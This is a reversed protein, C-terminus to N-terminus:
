VVLNCFYKTIESSCVRISPNLMKALSISDLAWQTELASNYFSTYKPGASGLQVEEISFINHIELDLETTVLWMYRSLAQMKAVAVSSGFIKNLEVCRCTALPLQGVTTCSWVM